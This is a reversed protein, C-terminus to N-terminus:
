AWGRAGYALRDGNSLKEAFGCFYLADGAEFGGPLPPPPWARCLQALYCSVLGRNLEFRVMVRRDPEFTAAGAVVGQTGHEAKDGWSVTQSVGCYYM